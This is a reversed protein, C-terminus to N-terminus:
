VRAREAYMKGGPAPSAVEATLVAYRRSAEPGAGEPGEAFGRIVLWIALVLQQAALPLTLSLYTTTVVSTLGTMLLVSGTFSLAVGAFGWWSLWRPVLRARALVWYLLLDGAGLALIVAVHNVLDRGSRLLAGVTEFYTAAVPAGAGVFRTSLEVLLLLVIVGAVNLVAGAIRFGLFGAAATASYRRLLPYLAVAVGVYAAAMVCQFFGAAVVSAQEGELARLYDPGDAAGAVSLLGAAMGLLVLIGAAMTARRSAARTSM